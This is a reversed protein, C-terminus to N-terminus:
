AEGLDDGEDGDGDDPPEAFYDENVVGTPLTMAHQYADRVTDGGRTRHVMVLARAFAPPDNKALSSIPERFEKKIALEEFGTLSRYFEDATEEAHSM